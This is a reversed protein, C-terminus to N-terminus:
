SFKHVTKMSKKQSLTHVEWEIKMRAFCMIWSIIDSMITGVVNNNLQVKPSQSSEFALVKSNQIAAAIKGIGVIFNSHKHDSIKSAVSFSHPYPCYDVNAQLENSYFHRFFNIWDVFMDRDAWGTKNIWIKLDSCPLLIPASLSQSFYWLV